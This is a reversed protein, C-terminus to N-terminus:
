KKGKARTALELLFKDFENLDFSKTGKLPEIADPGINNLILTIRKGCYDAITAEYIVWQSMSSNISVVALVEQSEEIGRKITSKIEDGGHLDNNDLWTELGIGDIEKSIQRAIWSEKSSHSIFVKYASTEATQQQAEPAASKKAAKKKGRKASKPSTAKKAM